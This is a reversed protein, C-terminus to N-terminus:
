PRLPDGARGARTTSCRAIVAPRRDIAGNWVARSRDYDSHEQTLVHGGFAARFSEIGIRLQQTM